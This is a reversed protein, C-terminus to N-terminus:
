RGDDGWLSWFGALRRAMTNSQVNALEVGIGVYAHIIFPWEIVIAGHSVCRGFKFVALDGPLPTRVPVAYQKVWGLYKEENRHMHWDPPYPRPDIDPILGAEHFVKILIFACDVGAGKVAGQHHYPTGLWTKAIEIVQERQVRETTM